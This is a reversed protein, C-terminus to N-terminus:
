KFDWIKDSAVFATMQKGQFSLSEQKNELFHRGLVWTHIVITQTDTKRKLLHHKMFFAAWEVWFEFFRVLAKTLSLQWVQTQMLLSKHESRMEGFPINFIVDVWPNFNLLFKLVENLANKLTVSAKIVTFARCHLSHSSTCKLTEAKIRALTGTTRGVMLYHKHLYKQGPPNRFYDWLGGPPRWAMSQSGSTLRSCIKEIGECIHYM